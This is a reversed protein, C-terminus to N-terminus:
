SSKEWKEHFYKTEPSQPFESLPLVFICTATPRPGNVFVCYRSDVDYCLYHDSLWNCSFSHFRIPVPPPPIQSIPAQTTTLDFMLDGSSEPRTAVQISSDPTTNLVSPSDDSKETKIVGGSFVQIPPNDNMLPNPPNMVVTPNKVLRHELITLSPLLQFYCLFFGLLDPSDLWTAM